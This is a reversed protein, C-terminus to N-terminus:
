DWAIQGFTALLLRGQGPDLMGVWAIRGRLHARFDNVGSRNQSRPGQVVCNHLIARLLDYEERPVRTRHNVVVSTVQQRSASGSIRTKAHNVTFGEERVIRGVAAVIGRATAERGSGSFTLDDAYRTYTAGLADAYAALRRDLRFASLNALHPSTPAGQPLHPEALRRRLRFAGDDRGSTPMATLVATPTRHTCLGTLLHAVPEPYGATRFIGYVRGGTIAAFFSQLDLNVVWDARVHQQAATRVSRGPVFGHAAAHTPIPAVMTELVRRQLIKLRDLPAELLRAGGNRTVVWTSRYHHLRPSRARGLWEKPDAFALLEGLTVGLHDALDGAHDVAMVPFRPPAMSTPTTLRHVPRPVRGDRREARRDLESMTATMGVFAALERPRASPPRPYAELVERVLRRVWGHRAELVQVARDRLGPGTWPGALFADALATTLRLRDDIM